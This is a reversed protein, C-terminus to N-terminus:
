RLWKLLEYTALAGAMMWGLPLGIRLFEGLEKAAQDAAQRRAQEISMSRLDEQMARIQSRLDNIQKCLSDIQQGQRIVEHTLDDFDLRSVPSERNHNPAPFPIVGPETPMEHPGIELATM